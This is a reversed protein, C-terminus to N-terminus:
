SLRLYSLHTSDYTDGPRLKWRCLQQHAHPVDHPV